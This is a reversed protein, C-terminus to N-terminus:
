AFFLVRHGQAALAAASLVAVKSGGGQVHAFDNLVVVDPLEAAAGRAPVVALASPPSASVPAGGDSRPGHAAQGVPAAPYPEATRASSRAMRHAAGVAQPPRYLDNPQASRSLRRPAVAPSSAPKRQRRVIRRQSLRHEVARSRPRLPRRQARDLRTGRFVPLLTRGAPRGDARFRPQRADLRRPR